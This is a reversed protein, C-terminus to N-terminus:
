AVSMRMRVLFLYTLSKSLRLEVSITIDYVFVSPRALVIPDVALSECLFHFNSLSLSIIILILLINKDDSFTYGRTRHSYVSDCFSIMHDSVPLVM